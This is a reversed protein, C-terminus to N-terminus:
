LVSLVPQSVMQTRQKALAQKCNMCTSTQQPRTLVSAPGLEYNRKGQLACRAARGDTLANSSAPSRRVGILQM